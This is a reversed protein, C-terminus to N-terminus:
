PREMSGTGRVAVLKAYQAELESVRVNEPTVASDSTFIM